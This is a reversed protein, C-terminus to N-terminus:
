WRETIWPHKINNIYQQMYNYLACKGTQICFYSNTVYYSRNEYCRNHITDFIIRSVVSHPITTHKRFFIGFISSHRPAYAPTAVTYRLYVILYLLFTFFSCVILQLGSRQMAKESRLASFASPCVYLCSSGVALLTFAIRVFLYPLRARPWSLTVQHVGTSGLAKACIELSM